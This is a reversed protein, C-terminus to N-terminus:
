SRIGLGRSIQRPAHIVTFRKLRAAGPFTEFRTLNTPRHASGDDGSFELRVDRATIRPLRRNLMM